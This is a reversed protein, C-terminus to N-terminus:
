SFPLIVRNLPRGGQPKVKCIEGGDRERWILGHDTEMEYIDGRYVRMNVYLEQGYVERLITSVNECFKVIIIEVM